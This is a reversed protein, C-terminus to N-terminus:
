PLPSSPAPAINDSTARGSPQQGNGNARVREQRLLAYARSRSLGTQLAVQQWGVPAEPTETALLGRIRARPDRAYEPAPALHTSAAPASDQEDETTDQGALVPSSDHSAPERHRRHAL